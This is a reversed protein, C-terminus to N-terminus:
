VSLPAKATWEVKFGADAFREAQAADRVSVTAFLRGERRVVSTGPLLLPGLDEPLLQAITAAVNLYRPAEDAAADIPADLDVDTDDAVDIDVAVEARGDSVDDGTDPRSWESWTPQWAV